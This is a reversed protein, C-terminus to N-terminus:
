RTPTMRAQAEDNLRSMAAVASVRNHAGLARYLANVHVKVTGEALHLDRAIEKNSKGLAMLDLVNKQRPSLGNLKPEPAPPAVPKRAAVGSAQSTALSAPVFIQGELILRLASGLEATGFAKPIFGNAGADLALLVDERRESCTVVALKLDPYVQRIGHLSAAGAMGPMRLDITALAIDPTKGLHEIAEDLSSTEIVLRFNFERRLFEALAARFLEHGDAVLASVGSFM